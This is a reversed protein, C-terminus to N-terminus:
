RPPRPCYGHGGARPTLYVRNVPLWQVIVGHMGRYGRRMVRYEKAWEPIEVQAKRDTLILPRRGEAIDMFWVTAGPLLHGEPTLIRLEMVSELTAPVVGVPYGRSPVGFLGQM